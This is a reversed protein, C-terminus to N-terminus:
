NWKRQWSREKEVRSSTKPRVKKDFRILSTQESDFMTDIM